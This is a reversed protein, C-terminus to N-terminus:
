VERLGFVLYQENEGPKTRLRQRITGNFEMLRHGHNRLTTNLSALRTAADSKAGYDGSRSSYGVIGVIADIRMRDTRYKKYSGQKVDGYGKRILSAMFEGKVERDTRIHAGLRTVKMIVPGWRAAVREHSTYYLGAACSVSSDFNLDSASHETGPLYPWGATGNFPGALEPTAAKYFSSRGSDRQAALRTAEDRRVEVALDHIRSFLDNSQGMTLGKYTSGRGTGFPLGQGSVLEDLYAVQAPTLELGYKDKVTMTM